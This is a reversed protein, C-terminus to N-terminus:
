VVAPTRRMCPATKMLASSSGTSANAAQPDLKGAGGFPVEGELAKM